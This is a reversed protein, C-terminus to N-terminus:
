TKISIHELRLWRQNIFLGEYATLVGRRDMELM